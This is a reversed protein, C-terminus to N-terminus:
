LLGSRTVDRLRYWGYSGHCAIETGQSALSIRKCDQGLASQWEATVHVTQGNPLTGDQNVALTGVVDLSHDAPQSYGASSYTASSCGSFLLLTLCALVRLRDM